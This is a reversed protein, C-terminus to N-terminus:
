DIENFDNVQLRRMNPQDVLQGVEKQQGDPLRILTTQGKPTTGVADGRSDMDIAKLSM